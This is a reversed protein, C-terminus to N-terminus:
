GGLQFKRWRTRLVWDTLRGIRREYHVWVLLTPWTKCVYKTKVQPGDHLANGFAPVHAMDPRVERNKRRAEHGNENEYAQKM